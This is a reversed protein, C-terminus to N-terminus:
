LMLLNLCKRWRIEIYKYILPMSLKKAYDVRLRVEESKVQAQKAQLDQILFYYGLGMVVVFIGLWAFGKVMVPWSGYNDPRVNEWEISTVQEQIDQIKDAFAM